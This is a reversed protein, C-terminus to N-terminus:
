AVDINTKNLMEVGKAYRQKTNTLETRKEEIIKFFLSM